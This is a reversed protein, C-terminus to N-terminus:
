KVMVKVAEDGVKVVYVGSAPVPNSVQKGTTNYISYDDSSLGEVMINKDQVYVKDKFEPEANQEDASVPESTTTFSGSKVNLVNGEADLATITYNYETEPTLGTISFQYGYAASADRTGAMRESGSPIKVGIIEGDANFTVVCFVDDGSKIEIIYSDANDVVPWAISVQSSSMTIAVDEIPEDIHQVDICEIHEFKNWYETEKYVDLAKCPVYLKCNKYVSESFHLWSDLEEIMCIIKKINPSEEYFAFHWNMVSSLITVSTLNTCYSFAEGGISTVSNPIEISTLGTCGRFAYEGIKTVSNPIEISALGTCGWFARDGISTVGNPLTTNNSGYILKNTATEIIANCNNRSDYVKNNEDVVISTFGTCERFADEGIITVSNPINISTLGTCGRFANKGISTVGNPINISTLGTCGRFADEGIITVSNPINISTLGTCGEFVYHAIGTVSNPIDISTLGTCGKFAYPEISTVSNPINISTLGTCGEFANSRIETVNSPIEISTLGTCGKFANPGIKTVGNPINISTLGTCGGFGSVYTVSNPIEISTLGTCGWFASEGIKTVSNPIEISTLGTCGGFAHPGITTVSNPIEISTLSTCGEFANNGISTVSNPINISTLGTCGEFAYGWISTVGNPIEISTLGTCGRFAYEGIKTVSNPIEISALGTCGWFARDEISTVNKLITTNKCGVILKNTATEIIANCYNRSDYVSNTRDVSISTLGSCGSFAGGDIENVSSPIEISTLGTCGAFAYWGISTVSSPIKISTLGTCGQFAYKGISTVSSPIEISTLGTCDYFAHWGISTVNYNKSNYVVTSPIVVDGTVGKNRAVSVTTPDDNIYYNIGKYVFTEGAWIGQSMFLLMAVFFLLFKKM